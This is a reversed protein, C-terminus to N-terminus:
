VHVQGEASIHPLVAAQYGRWHKPPVFFHRRVYLQQTRIAPAHAAAAPSHALAHRAAAAAPWVCPCFCSKLANGSVGGLGVWSVRVSWIADGLYALSKTDSSSAAAAQQTPRKRQQRQQRQQASHPQRPSDAGGHPTGAATCNCRHRVRWRWPASHPQQAPAQHLAATQPQQQRPATRHHM